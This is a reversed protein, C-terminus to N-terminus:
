QLSLQEFDTLARQRCVAFAHVIAQAVDHGWSCQSVCRGGNLELAVTARFGGRRDGTLVVDCSHVDCDDEAKSLETDITTMLRDHGDFVRSTVHLPVRSNNTWGMPFPQAM